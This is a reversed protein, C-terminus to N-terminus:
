RFLMPAMDALSHRWVKWEHEGPYRKFVLNIQRSRLEQEVKTLVPMRPDETGCSFFFLRLKKNTAAGDALFGPSIKDLLAVGPDPAGAAGRFTGSSMVGLSAFVDLRKVGVNLTIGSGMSLGALARNERGSLTRYNKEVFPIMDNVIAKEHPEFEQSSGGVGPPPATRPGAIDLSALENWYANPMVVIMPRAKGQAILNDMIVNAIGMTPWADEDGGSGHLLYLVPYRTTSGEYGPPTYVFMRRSAKMAASPFWLSTMTGHPVPRPQFVASSEGPVLVTNMFGVGDRAANYNNPDLTRVGDVSFTYAWLEPQLAPITVSWLGSNDKTMALGRGGEWNGQVLVETAKPALLRFTIRRDALVEPSAVKAARAQGGGTGPSTTPAEQALLAICLVVPAVMVQILKM